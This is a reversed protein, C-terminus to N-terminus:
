ARNISCGGSTKQVRERQVYIETCSHRLKHPSVEKVGAKICLKKLDSLLIEYKLMGGKLGPAVFETKSSEKLKQLYGMLPGPM